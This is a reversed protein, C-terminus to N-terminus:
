DSVPVWYRRLEDGYGSYEVRFSRGEFTAITGKKPYPHLTNLAAEAREHESMPLTGQRKLEQELHQIERALRKIMAVHKNPNGGSRNGPELRALQRKLDQLHEVDSGAKSQM